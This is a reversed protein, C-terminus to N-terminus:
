SKTKGATSDGIKAGGKDRPHGALWFGLFASEVANLLDVVVNEDFKQVSDHQESSWYNGLGSNAEVGIIWLAGALQKDMVTDNEIAEHMTDIAEILRSIRESSPCDGQHLMMPVADDPVPETKMGELLVLSKADELTM